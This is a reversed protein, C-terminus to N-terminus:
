SRSSLPPFDTLILKIKKGGGINGNDLFGDSTAQTQFPFVVIRRVLSRTILETGPRNKTEAQHNTL